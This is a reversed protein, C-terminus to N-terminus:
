RSYFITHAKYIGAERAGRTRVQKVLEEQGIRGVGYVFARWMVLGGHPQLARALLNAGEAETANYTQPGQNGESDAKVLFGGFGPMLDYIESVKDAWWKAAVPSKPDCTVNDIVAPSAFCASFYPTVGHAAFLSGINKTVNKLMPSRLLDANDGYCANVDNLVVGNVGASKLLRLM